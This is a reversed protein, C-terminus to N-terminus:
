WRMEKRWSACLATVNKVWDQGTSGNQGLELENMRSQEERERRNMDVHDKAEREGKSGGTGVKTLATMRDNEGEGRLVRGLWNWGGVDYRAALITTRM